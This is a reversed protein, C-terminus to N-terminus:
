CKSLLDVRGARVRLLATEPPLPKDFLYGQVIKIGARRVFELEETTEVGEAVLRLGKNDAAKITFDLFQKAQVDSLASAVITRDLKIESFPCARLVDFNAAGTGFDDLAVGFEAMRLRAVNEIILSLDEPMQRETMEYVLSSPAIGGSKCLDALKSCFGSDGLLTPELNISVKCHLGEDEWNRMHELVTRHIALAKERVEAADEADGLAVAAGYIKGTADFARALVELGALAGTEVHYQPQYFPVLALGSGGPSLLEAGPQREKGQEITTLLEALAETRIPKALVGAVHVGLMAGIRAAAERIAAIEGSSIIIQGNFGLEAAARIFAIGDMRPMNLDLIIVDFRSVSERLVDIGAQGDEAATVNHRGLSEIVYEAVTLFVPDDDVLLFNLSGPELNM